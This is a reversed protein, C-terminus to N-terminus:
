NNPNFARFLKVGSSTFHVLIALKMKTVALYKKIQEINKRSFYNGRKIELVMKDEIIFDIFNRGIIEGHFIVQYPAQRKFNIKNEILIKAIANEYTKEQYGYGLENYVEYLMGVIKYSLDKYIVKDRGGQDM